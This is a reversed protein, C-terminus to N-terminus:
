MPDECEIAFHVPTRGKRDKVNVEAGKSLLLKLLDIWEQQITYMLPTISWRDQFVYIYMLLKIILFDAVLDHHYGPWYSDFESYCHNFRGRRYVVTPAIRVANLFM